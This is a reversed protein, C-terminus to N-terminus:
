LWLYEMIREMALGHRIGERIVALNHIENQKNFAYDMVVALTEPHLRAEHKYLKKMYLKAAREPWEENILIDKNFRYKVPILFTATQTESLGYYKKLRYKRIANDLNIETGKLRTLLRRNKKDLNALKKWVLLHYKLDKKEQTFVTDLFDRYVPECVYCRLRAYEHCFHSVYSDMPLVTGNCLARYEERTLLKKRLAHIKANLGGFHVARAKGAM